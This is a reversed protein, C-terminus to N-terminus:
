WQHLMKKLQDNVTVFPLVYLDASVNKVLDPTIPTGDKTIAGEAVIIINLRQGMKREQRLLNGNHAFVKACTSFVTVDVSKKSDSAQVCDSLVPNRLLTLM